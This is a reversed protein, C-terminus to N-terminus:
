LNLQSAQKFFSILNNEDAIIKIINIFEDFPKESLNNIGSIDEILQYIEKETDAGAEIITMLVEMGITDVSVNKLDINKFSEKVKAKKIIRALSFIDKTLVKRKM